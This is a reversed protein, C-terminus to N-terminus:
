AADLLSSGARNAPDRAVMRVGTPMIRSDANHRLTHVRVRKGLGAAEQADRCAKQVTRPTIPRDPVNGPFLFQTPRAAKWYERLIALLRPSLMVYRDKQGKAQRIRIVMRRSDIDDVRL